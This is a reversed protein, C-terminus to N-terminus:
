FKFLFLESVLLNLLSTAEDGERCKESCLFSIQKFVLHYNIETECMENLLACTRLFSSHVECLVDLRVDSM